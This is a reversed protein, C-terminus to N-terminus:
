HRFVGVTPVNGRSLSMVVADAKDPSRGLRRKLEVKAELQVQGSATPSWKLALLEEFLGSDRPLAIKGEELLDRLTWYVEARVNLWRSKDSSYHRGNHDNVCYGLHRLRDAVGAGLGVVDVTISGWAMSWSGVYPRCGVDAAERAVRLATETISMGRWTVIKEIVQGRRIAV